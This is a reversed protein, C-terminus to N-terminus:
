KPIIQSIIRLALINVHLFQLIFVGALCCIQYNFVQLWSSCYCFISIFSYDNVGIVESFINYLCDNAIEVDTSNPINNIDIGALKIDEIRYLIEPDDLLSLAMITNTAPTINVIGNNNYYGSFLYESDGEDSFYEALLIFPPSVNEGNITFEGTSEINTSITLGESDKLYVNGNILNHGNIVIGSIIFNEELELGLADYIDNYYPNKQFDMAARNIASIKEEDFDHSNIKINIIENGEFFM